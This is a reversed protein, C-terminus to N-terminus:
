LYWIYCCSSWIAHVDIWGPQSKWVLVFLICLYVLGKVDRWHNAVLHYAIDYICCCWLVLFCAVWVLCCSPEPGLWLAHMCARVEETDGASVGKKSRPRNILWSGVTVWWFFIELDLIPLRVGCMRPLFYPLGFLSSSCVFLCRIRPYRVHRYVYSCSSM